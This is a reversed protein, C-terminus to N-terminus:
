EQLQLILDLHAFAYEKKALLADRMFEVDVQKIDDAFEEYPKSSSVGQSTGSESRMARIGKIGKRILLGGMMYGIMGFIYPPGIVMVQITAGLTVVCGVGIQIYPARSKQGSQQVVQAMGYGKSYDRAWESMESAFQRCRVDDLRLYVNHFLAVLGNAEYGDGAGMKVMNVKRAVENIFDEVIDELLPTEAM